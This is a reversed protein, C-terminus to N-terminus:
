DGGSFKKDKEPVTAIVANLNLEEALGMLRAVIGFPTKKDSMIIITVITNDINHTTSVQVLKEKLERYTLQLPSEHIAGLGPGIIAIRDPTIKVQDEISQHITKNKPYPTEPDNFEYLIRHKEERTIIELQSLKKDFDESLSDLLRKFYSIFRDITEPNFLRTCYETIFLFREGLDVATLTLDFKSTGKRHKNLYQEKEEFGPINDNYEQINFLNFMVDFVPNRGTDRSVSIKDM